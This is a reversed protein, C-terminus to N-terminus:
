PALMTVKQHPGEDQNIPPPEQQTRVHHFPCAVETPYRKHPNMGNVFAGGKHGLCRRLAGGGLAM